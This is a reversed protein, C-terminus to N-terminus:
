SRNLIKHNDLLKKVEIYSNLLSANAYFVNGADQRIFVHEKWDLLDMIISKIYIGILEIDEENWNDININSILDRLSIIVKSLEEFESFQRLFKSFLEFFKHIDQIMPYLDLTDDGLSFSNMILCDIEELDMYIEDKLYNYESIIEENSLQLHSNNFIDMVVDQNKITQTQDGNDDFDDFDFFDEHHFTDDIIKRLYHNLILTITSKGFPRVVYANAGKEKEKERTIDDKLATAMVIIPQKPLNMKRIINLANFGNMIPMMIDLFIMDFSYDGALIIAEQGDKVRIINYNNVGINNDNMYDVIILDLIKTNIINDDVLLFQFM